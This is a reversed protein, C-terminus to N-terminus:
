KVNEMVADFIMERLGEKMKTQLRVDNCGLCYYTAPARSWSAEFRRNIERRCRRRGKREADVGEHVM